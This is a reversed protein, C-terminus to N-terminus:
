REQPTILLNLLPDVAAVHGPLIVTTSDYQEVIAYGQVQMGPRLKARDYTPVEIPGDEAWVTHTGTQAASPDAAVAETPALEPPPVHGAALARLCVIEAGDELDFGYLQRHAEAFRATLVEADLTQLEDESVPIPIEFGQREYRMDVAFEIAQDAADVEEGALWERAQTELAAFQERVVTADLEGIAGILTQSFENKVDSAVFGLASLVGSENPVIV